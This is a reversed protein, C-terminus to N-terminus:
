GSADTLENLNMQTGTEKRVELKNTVSESRPNFIIEWM